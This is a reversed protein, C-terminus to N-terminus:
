AQEKSGVVPRYTHRTAGDEGELLCLSRIDRIVIGHVTRVSVKRVLGDSGPYIEEVVGKSWHGRGIKEKCLLVMDGKRINWYEKVWKPSQQLTSLYDRRWRKWLADVLHQTQRWQKNYGEHLSTINFEFGQNPRFLSTM